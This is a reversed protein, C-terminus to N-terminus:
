YGGKKFVKGPLILKLVVKKGDLLTPIIKM